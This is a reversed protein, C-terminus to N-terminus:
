SGLDSATEASTCCRATMTRDILPKINDLMQLQDLRARMERVEADLDLESEFAAKAERLGWCVIRHVLAEPIRPSSTGCSRV